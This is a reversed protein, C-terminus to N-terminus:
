DALQAQTMCTAGPQLMVLNMFHDCKALALFMLLFPAKRLLDSGGLQWPNIGNSCKRKRRPGQVSPAWFYLLSWYCQFFISVPATKPSDPHPQRCRGLLVAERPNLHHDPAQPHQVFVQCKPHSRFRHDLAGTQTDICFSDLSKSVHGTAFKSFEGSMANKRDAEELSLTFLTDSWSEVSGVDSSVPWRVLRGQEECGRALMALVVLCLVRSDVDFIFGTHLENFLVGFRFIGNQTQGVIM